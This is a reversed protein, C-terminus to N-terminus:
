RRLRSWVAPATLVLKRAAKSKVWELVVVAVLRAALRLALSRDPEADLSSDSATLLEKARV